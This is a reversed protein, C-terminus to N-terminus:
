SWDPLVVLVCNYHKIIKREIKNYLFNVLIDVCYQFILKNMSLTTNSIFSLKTIVNNVNLSIEPQATNKIQIIVYNYDNLNTINIRFIM